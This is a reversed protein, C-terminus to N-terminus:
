RLDEMRLYEGTHFQEVPPTSRIHNMLRWFWSRAIPDNISDPYVYKYAGEDIEPAPHLSKRYIPALYSQIGWRVNNLLESIWTGYYVFFDDNLHETFNELALPIQEIPVDHGHERLMKQINRSLGTLRSVNHKAQNGAIFLLQLRPVRLSVQVDINPLWLDLTTEADLWSRLRQMAEQLPNCSEHFEFSRTGCAASLVDLCSGKVGTLGADGTEKALDLLRIAFLQQHVRTPFYATAEGQREDVRRIDLMSHNVIDDIAELVICLGIVESEAASLSM